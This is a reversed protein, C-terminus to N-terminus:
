VNVRSALTSLMKFVWESEFWFPPAPVFGIFQVREGRQWESKSWPTAITLEPLVVTPLNAGWGGKGGREFYIVITTHHFHM